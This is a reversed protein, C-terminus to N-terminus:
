FKALESLKRLKGIEVGFNRNRTKYYPFCPEGTEIKPWGSVDESTAWGGIMFEADSLGFSGCNWNSKQFLFVKGIKDQIYINYKPAEEFFSFLCDISIVKQNVFGIDIPTKMSVIKTLPRNEVNLYSVGMSVPLDYNPIKGRTNSIKLDCNEANVNFKFNSHSDDCILYSFIYIEKKDNLYQDIPVLAWGKNNLMEATRTEKQFTRFIRFGKIDVKLITGSKTLIVHESFDKIRYDTRFPASIIPLDYNSTLIRECAQEIIIGDRIKKFRQIQDNGYSMRDFTFKLSQASYVLANLIEYNLVGSKEM